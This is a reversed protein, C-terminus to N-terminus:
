RGGELTWYDGTLLRITHVTIFVISGANVLARWPVTRGRITFSRGDILRHVIVSAFFAIPLFISLLLRPGVGIIQYWSYLISYGILFGTVLLGDIWHARIGALTRRYSLVAAVALVPLLWKRIFIWWGEYRKKIMILTANWGDKLREIVHSLSRESLYTRATPLERDPPPVFGPDSIGAARWFRKEEDTEMWMYHKSHVDWLPSGHMRATNILYPSLVGAFVAPVILAVGFEGVRGLVTGRADDPRRRDLWLERLLRLGACAVFLAILPVVSSKIIFATALVLGAILALWWRPEVLLRWLLVLSLLFLVYFILEPQVYPARIVAVLWGFAWTVIHSEVVPLFRRCLAYLGVLSLCALFLTFVKARFFYGEGVTRPDQGTPDIPYADSQWSFASLLFSFGPMRHRPVIKRYDQDRMLRGMNLYAHQDYDFVAHEDNNQIGSNKREAKEWAIACFLPLFLVFPLWALWSRRRSVAPSAPSAAAPLPPDQLTAM